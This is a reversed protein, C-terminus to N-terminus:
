LYLCPNVSVRVRKVMERPCTVQNQTRPAHQPLSGPVRGTANCCFVVNLAYALPRPCPTMVHLPGSVFMLHPGYTNHIRHRRTCRAAKRLPVKFFAVDRCCHTAEIEEGGSTCRIASWCVLLGAFPRKAGHM